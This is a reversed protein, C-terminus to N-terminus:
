SRCRCKHFFSVNNLDDTGDHVHFERLDFFERLDVVGEFDLVFDATVWGLEGEFHLLMKSFIPHAGDGHRRGLTELATHAHGVGAPRDAHGHALAHETAKEIHGAIRDVIAARYFERLTVGDM